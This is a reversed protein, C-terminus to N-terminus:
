KNLLSKLCFIFFLVTVALLMGSPMIQHTKLYRMFFSVTLLGAIVTLFGYGYQANFKTLWLGALVCLGSAIGAVVSVQSGAKGGFYAGAFMFLAYALIIYNNM